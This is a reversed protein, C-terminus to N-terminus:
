NPQAFIGLHNGIARERGVIYADIPSNLVVPQGSEGQIVMTSSGGGDQNMATTAGYRAAIATLDVLTAGESYNPQRGDVIILILTHADKDLGYVTRPEPDASPDASSQDAGVVSKGDVMIMSLGAVANYVSGIPQNFSAKNDASLYLIPLGQSNTSYV